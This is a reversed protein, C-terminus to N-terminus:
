IKLKITPGDKCIATTWKRIASMVQLAKQINVPTEGEAVPYEILETFIDSLYKIAM